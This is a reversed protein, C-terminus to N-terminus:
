YKITFLLLNGTNKGKFWDMHGTMVYPSTKFFLSALAGTSGRWEGLGPWDSEPNKMIEKLHPKPDGVQFSLGRWTQGVMLYVLMMGTFVYIHISISLYYHMWPYKSWRNTYNSLITTWIIITILCQIIIHGRIVIDYTWMKHYRHLIDM